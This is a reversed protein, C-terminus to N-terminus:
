RVEDNKKTLRKILADLGKQRIERSFTTRYNAVLSVGDISVDYVKWADGKLYLNYNIPIPFAGPQQIETRVVVDGSAEGERLPLYDIAQDTYENLATAYTRVLLMRFEKTFDAQQQKSAKRRYKGLVWKAIREFDFHPLVIEDVMGYLMNPKAKIAESEAKLRELVQNSTSQVLQQPPTVAAAASGAFLLASIFLLALRKM